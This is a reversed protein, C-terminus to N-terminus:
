NECVEEPTCGYEEPTCGYEEPTCEYEEYTPGVIKLPLGM